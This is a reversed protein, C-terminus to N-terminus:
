ARVGTRDGLYEALARLFAPRRLRSLALREEGVRVSHADAGELYALNVLIGKHIRFFSGGALAAEAEGMRGRIRIEEGVLHYVLFHGHASIYRIRRAAVCRMGGPLALCVRKERRIHLCRRAKQLLPVLDEYSSVEAAGLAGVAYSDPVFPDSYLLLVPVEGRLQQAATLGGADARLLALDYRPTYEALFQAAGAYRDVALRIDEEQAFRALFACLRECSDAENEVVAVYWM